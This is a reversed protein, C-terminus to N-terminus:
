RDLNAITMHKQSETKGEAFEGVGWSRIEDEIDFKEGRIRQLTMRAQRMKGNEALWKPSEGVGFLGILQVLGIAGALAFVLRWMQNYSLFYGTMQTVFIGGNVMVQTFSGFFGREAPPSIESVYIPVVVVSAGAGIGSIVRGVAMVPISPALAEFIPGVIFFITTIQMARLRGKAASLPGAALAGILGGLTFISSVLGLEAKTM